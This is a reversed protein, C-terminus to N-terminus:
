TGEYLEDYLSEDKDAKDVIKQLGPPLKEAKPLGTPPPGRPQETEPDKGAM